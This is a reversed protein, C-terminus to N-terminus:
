SGCSKDAFEPASPPTITEQSTCGPAADIRRFPALLYGAAAAAVAAIALLQSTTLGLAGYAQDGRVFDIAFRGVAYLVVVLPLSRWRRVVFFLVVGLASEYLQTPHVPLTAAAGEAILGADLQTAFAPTMHPYALAWPVHTPMGFDCGAFFCGLRAIALMPGIALSLAALADRNSRAALAFGVVLGALAGFGAVELSPVPGSFGHAIFRAWEGGNAVVVALVAACVVGVTFPVLASRRARAIVLAGVGAAVVQFAWWSPFWAARHASMWISELLMGAGTCASHRTAGYSNRTYRASEGRRERLQRRTCVRLSRLQNSWDDM